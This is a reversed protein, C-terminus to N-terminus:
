ATATCSSCVWWLPKVHDLYIRLLGDVKNIETVEGRCAKEHTFLVLVTDGVGIVSDDGSISNVIGGISDLDAIINCPSDQNYILM